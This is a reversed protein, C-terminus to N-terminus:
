LKPRESGQTGWVRHTAPHMRCSELSRPCWMATQATEAPRTVGVARLIVDHHLLQEKFTLKGEQGGPAPTGMAVCIGMGSDWDTLSSIVGDTEM